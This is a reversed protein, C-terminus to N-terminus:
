EDNGELVLSLSEVDESSQPTMDWGLMRRSVQLQDPFRADEITVMVPVGLNNWEGFEIDNTLKVEFTPTVVPLAYQKAMAVGMNDVKAQTDVSKDSLIKDWAPYGADLKDQNLVLARKMRTGEGRGTFTHRTGGRAASEPYYYNTIQGPYDLSIGDQGYGLYPYGARARIQLVENADFYPEFTYDFSGTQSVLEEVGKIFFQDEFAEITLDRLIGSAGILSTDIGFNNYPQAQMAAILDRFIVLQDTNKRKFQTLVKVASLVSEFSQATMSCVNAQSQFTRSWIPGGWVVVEDRLAVLALKGPETATLLDPDSFLNTGLKFSGTANGASSIRRSFSTGYLPLDEVIRRTLLDVGVYRYEPM